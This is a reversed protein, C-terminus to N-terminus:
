LALDNMLLLLSLLLIVLLPLLILCPPLLLLLERRCSGCDASGRGRGQSVRGLEEIIAATHFSVDVFVGSDVVVVAEVEAGGRSSFTATVGVIEVAPQLRHHEIDVGHPLPSLLDPQHGGGRGLEKAGAPVDPILNSRQLRHLRHELLHSVFEPCAIRRRLAFTLPNHTEEGVELLPLPRAVDLRPAVHLPQHVEDGGRLLLLMLCDDGCYITLFFLLSRPRESM